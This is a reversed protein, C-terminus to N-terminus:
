TASLGIQTLGLQFSSLPIKIVDDSMEERNKKEINRNDMDYLQASVLDPVQLSFLM